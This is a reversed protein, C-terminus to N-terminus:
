YLFPLMRSRQKIKEEGFKQAYWSRTSESTIALTVVTFILVTLITKNLMQGAPAAVVALALYIACESTYHPCLIWRFLRHEPLTYKKLKALYAHSDYQAVSAILFLPVAITTKASPKSMTIQELPHNSALLAATIILM